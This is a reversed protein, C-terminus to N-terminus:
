SDLSSSRDRAIAVVRQSTSPLPADLASITGLEALITENISPLGIAELSTRKIDYVTFAPDPSPQGLAARAAIADAEQIQHLVSELINASNSRSQGFLYSLLTRTSLVSTVYTGFDNDLTCPTFHEDIAQQARELTAERGDIESIISLTERFSRRFRDLAAARNAPNMAAVRPDYSYRFAAHGEWRDILPHQM